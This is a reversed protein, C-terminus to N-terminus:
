KTEKAKHLPNRARHINRDSMQRGFYRQRAGWHRAQCRRPLALSQPKVQNLHRDVDDQQKAAKKTGARDIKSAVNGALRKEGRLQHQRQVERYGQM